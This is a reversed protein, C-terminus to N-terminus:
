KDNNSIYDSIQNSINNHDEARVYFRENVNKSKEIIEMIAKNSQPDVNGINKSEIAKLVNASRYILKYYPHQM